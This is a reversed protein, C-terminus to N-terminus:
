RRVFGTSKNKIFVSLATQTFNVIVLKIQGVQKHFDLTTSGAVIKMANVNVVNRRRTIVKNRHILLSKASAVSQGIVNLVGLLM